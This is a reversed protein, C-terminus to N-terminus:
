CADKLHLYTENFRAQLHDVARLTQDSGEPAVNTDYQPNFFLPISLREDSGGVVRHPTALISSDTWMELMEGFNIVFDGPETSVSHWSGDRLKVELGPTGDTALLTLCGYDTHEAIGFDQAGAHTPRPPYYNGRLLAMPNKFCTRFYEANKGASQAVACLLDLAFPLADRYYQQLETKFQVPRAPWRNRAYVPLDVEPWEYGCDFVQKYDPNANPNVQETRPAGWGRNSGTSAMNCAAKEDAPLLFFNRYTDFLSQMREASFPTNYVTFFGITTAAVGVAALAETHGDATTHLLAEADIRPIM